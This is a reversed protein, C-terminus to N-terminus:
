VSNEATWQGTFKVQYTATGECRMQLLDGPVCQDGGTKAAAARSLMLAIVLKQMTRYNTGASRTATLTVRRYITYRAVRNSDLILATYTAFSGVGRVRSVKQTDTIRTVRSPM